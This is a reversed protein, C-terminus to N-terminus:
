NSFYFSSIILEAFDGINTNNLSAITDTDNSISSNVFFFPSGPDSELFVNNAGGSLTIAYNFVPTCYTAVSGSTDFPLGGIKIIGVNTSASSTSINLYFNVVNGIKTYRGVQEEYVVGVDDGGTLLTPTFTGSDVPADAGTAGTSGTAGQLGAPGAIGTSGTPGTNGTAGTSGTQGTNGTSGTNGTNGTAGTSGTSGHINSTGLVTLNDCQLDGVIDVNGEVNASEFYLNSWPKPNPLLLQNLSM